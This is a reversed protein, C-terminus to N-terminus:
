RADTAVWIESIALFATSMTRGFFQRETVRGRLAQGNVSMSADGAEMFVAYMEHEGTASNEATCEVGFPQGLQQLSMIAEIDGSRVTTVQSGPMQDDVRVDDLDHWSMGDLGIKGLFSPFKRMFRDLLYECMPRNDTICVNNVEPLGAATDPEGLLVMVHGRGRPSWTIDFYLGLATWPGDPTDRLYIGPNNGAWEVTGPNVPVRASM